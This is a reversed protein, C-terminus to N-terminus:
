ALLVSGVTIQPLTHEEVFRQFKHEMFTNSRLGELSVICDEYEDRRWGM